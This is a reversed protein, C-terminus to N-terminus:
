NLTEPSEYCGLVVFFFQIRALGKKSFGRKTSKGTYIRYLFHSNIHLTLDEHMSAPFLSNLNSGQPHWFWIEDLWFIEGVFFTLNWPHCFKMRPCRQAGSPGHASESAGPPDFEFKMLDFFKTLLLQWAGVLSPGLPFGNLPYKTTEM